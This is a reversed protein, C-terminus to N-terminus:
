SQRRICLRHRILIDRAIQWYLLALRSNVVVSAHLRADRIRQKLEKLFAPYGDPLLTQTM